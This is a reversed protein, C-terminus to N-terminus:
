LGRSRGRLPTPSRVHGDGGAADSMLANLSAKASAGGHDDPEVGLVFEHRAFIDLQRILVGTGTAQRRDTKPYTTEVLDEGGKWRGLGLLQVSGPKPTLDCGLCRCLDLTLNKGFIQSASLCGRAIPRVKKARFFQEDIPQM